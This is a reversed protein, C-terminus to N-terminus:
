RTQPAPLPWKYLYISGGLVEQPTQKRLMDYFDIYSEKVYVGQLHTASVAIVGPQDPYISKTLFGYGAGTNIYRIGYVSPDATGFYDLYLTTSPHDAQWAALLKLDQGWDLNSDSLLALRQPRSIANFFPIYNPFALLSETAIAILLIPIAVRPWRHKEILHAAIVGAAIYLPPFIPLIHRIGLNTHTTMANYSYLMLPIALCITTWRPSRRVHILALVITAFLILLASLPTKFLIALPFYYWWGTRSYQDLLFAPYSFTSQYTYLLGHLWAQPFLHFQEAKLIARVFLPPSWAKLEDPTARRNPHDIQLQREAAQELMPQMTLHVSLDPTPSFRFRYLTWISLYSFLSILITLALATFIRKARSRIARIGLQWADPLIARILLALPVLPAALLGSFKVNICVIVALMLNIAHWVTIRQGIRWLAYAVWLLAFALAVDNKVLAAHALFNPDFAILATATVAAVSGGIRWSWLAVLAVGLAAAILMMLRARGLVADADNAPTRYLTAVSWEWDHWHEAPILKWKDSDLDVVLASRPLALMSWYHFLPPDRDDVRFDRYHTSMFAGMLHLPEDATASKTRAALWASATFTALLLTVLVLSLRATKDDQAFRLIQSSAHDLGSGESREPHCDRQEPMFQFPVRM